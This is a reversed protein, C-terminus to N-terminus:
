DAQPEPAPHVATRHTNSSSGFPWIGTTQGGGTTPDDLLSELTEQEHGHQRWFAVTNRSPASDGGNASEYELATVHDAEIADCMATTFVNALRNVERTIATPVAAVVNALATLLENTGVDPVPIPGEAYPVSDTRMGAIAAFVEDPNAYVYEAM